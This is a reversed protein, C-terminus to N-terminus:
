VAWCDAFRLTGSFGGIFAIIDHPTFVDEGAQDAVNAGALVGLAVPAEQGSASYASAFLAFITVAAARISM